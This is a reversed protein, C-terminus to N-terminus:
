TAPSAHRAGAHPERARDRPAPEACRHQGVHRDQDHLRRVRQQRRDRRRPRDRDDLLQDRARRPEAPRHADGRRRPLPARDADARRRDDARRHAAAHLQHRRRVVVSRGPHLPRRLVRRRERRAPRLRAVARARRRGCRRAGRRHGAAPLEHIALMLEALHEQIVQIFGVPGRGQAAPNPEDGGTMNAGACFGRGSGTLVVARVSRDEAIEDLTARLVRVLQNSLANYREPDDLEVVTVGGGVDQRNVLTM